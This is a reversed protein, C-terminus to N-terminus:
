TWTLISTSNMEVFFSALCLGRIDVRIHRDLIKGNGDTIIGSSAGFTSFDDNDDLIALEFRNVRVKGDESQIDAVGNHLYSCRLMYCADGNFQVEKYHEEYEGRYRNPEYMYENFWKIYKEYERYEKGTDPNIQLDYSIKGFIDPITLALALASYYCKNKVAQRIDDIKEMM